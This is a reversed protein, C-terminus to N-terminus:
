VDGQAEYAQDFLDSFAAEDLAAGDPAVQSLFVMRRGEVAVAMLANVAAGTGDPTGVTVTFAVGQTVDGVQPIELPRLDLSGTTGDPATIDVHSCRDLFTEFDAASGAEVEGDELLMQVTLTRPTEASRGAVADFKVPDPQIKGLGETCEAPTLTVGQPLVGAGSASASLERVDVDTVTAAPGFADEPLLGAVLDDDTAPTDEPAPASSELAPAAAEGDDEEACGSVASLLLAGGLAVPLARRRLMATM